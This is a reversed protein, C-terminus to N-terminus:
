EEGRSPCAYMLGIFVAKDIEDRVEPTWVGSASYLLEGFCNIVFVQPIVSASKLATYVKRGKDQVVPFSPSHQTIWRELASPDVDLGM